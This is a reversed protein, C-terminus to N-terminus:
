QSPETRNDQSDRKMVLLSEGARSLNELVGALKSVRRFYTPMEDM